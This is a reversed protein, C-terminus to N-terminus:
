AIMDYEFVYARKEAYRNFEAVNVAGTNTFDEAENSFYFDPNNIRGDSVFEEFAKISLM